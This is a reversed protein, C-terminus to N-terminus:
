AFPWCPPVQVTGKQRPEDAIIMHHSLKWSNGNMFEIIGQGTYPWSDLMFYYSLQEVSYAHAWMPCDAEYLQAPTMTKEITTPVHTMAHYKLQLAQQEELTGIPAKHYNALRKLDAVNPHTQSKVENFLDRAQYKTLHRKFPWM